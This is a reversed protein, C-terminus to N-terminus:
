GLGLETDAFRTGLLAKAFEPAPTQLQPVAPLQLGARFWLDLLASLGMAELGAKRNRAGANVVHARSM